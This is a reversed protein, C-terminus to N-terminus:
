HLDYPNTELAYRFAETVPKGEAVARKFRAEARDASDKRRRPDREADAAQWRVRWRYEDVLLERLAKIEEAQARGADQAQELAKKLADLRVYIGDAPVLREDFAPPPEPKGTGEKVASSEYLVRGLQSDTIQHKEWSWVYPISTAIWGGLAVIATWAAGALWSKSVKFRIHRLSDRRTPVPTESIGFTPPPSALVHRQVRFRGEDREV